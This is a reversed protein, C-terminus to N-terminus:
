EEAGDDDTENVSMDGPGTFPKPGGDVWAVLADFAAAVEASTTSGHGEHDFWQLAVMDEAGADRARDLYDIVSSVPVIPDYVPSLIMLPVELEGTSPPWQRLYDVAEPDAAYRPVARNITALDEDDVIYIRTTNDFPNGGSREQAEHILYTKFTTWFATDEPKRDIVRRYREAAEPNADLAAQVAERLEPDNYAMGNLPGVLPPAVGPFYHEFLALHEFDDNMWEIAPILAGCCTVLGGDYIEPQLEVSMMTISAGMAGGSAFIRGPEGHEAIFHDIMKENDVIAQEHAWGGASYSSQAVAYGRDLYVLSRASPDGDRPIRPTPSYGHNMVILDGNWEEPVDIRYTAGDIEGMETQVQAVAPAALLAFAAAAALMRTM